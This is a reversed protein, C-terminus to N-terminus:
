WADQTVFFRRIFDLRTKNAVPIPVFRDGLRGSLLARTRAKM